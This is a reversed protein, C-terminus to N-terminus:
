TGYPGYELALRLAADHTAATAIRSTPWTGHHSQPHHAWVRYQCEYGRENTTDGCWVMIREVHIPLGLAVEVQERLTM